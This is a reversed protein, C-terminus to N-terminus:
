VATPWRNSVSVNAATSPVPMPNTIMGRETEENTVKAGGGDNTSAGVAVANSKGSVSVVSTPTACTLGRDAGFPPDHQSDDRRQIDFAFVNRQRIPREVIQRAQELFQGVAM